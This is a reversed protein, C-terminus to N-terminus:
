LKSFLAIAVDSDRSDQPLLWSYSTLNDKLVLVYKVKSNKAPAMYLFDMQVVEEPKQGYLATALPRPIRDGNRLINCHLCHQIFEKFDKRLDRWSLEARVKNETVKIKRHGDCGCLAMIM